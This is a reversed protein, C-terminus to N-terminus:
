YIPEIIKLVNKKLHKKINVEGNTVKAIKSYIAENCLFDALINYKESKDLEYNELKNFKYDRHSRVWTFYFDRNKIEKKIQNEFINIYNILNENFFLNTKLENSHIKSKSKFRYDDDVLLKLVRTNDTYFVICSNKYQDIHKLIFNLGNIPAILETLNNDVESEILQTERYIEKDNYHIITTFASYKGLNYENNESPSFLSSDTFVEIKNAFKIEEINKNKISYENRHKKLQDERFLCNFTMTKNNTDVFRRKIPVHKLEFSVHEKSKINYRRISFKSKYFKIESTM